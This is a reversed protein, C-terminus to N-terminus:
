LFWRLLVMLGREGDVGWQLEQLDIFHQALQKCSPSYLFSSMYWNIDWNLDSLWVCLNVSISKQIDRIIRLACLWLRPQSVHPIKNTTFISEMIRFTQEIGLLQWVELLAFPIRIRQRTKFSKSLSGSLSATRCAHNPVLSEVQRCVTILGIQEGGSTVLGQWKEKPLQFSAREHTRLMISKVTVSLSLLLIITPHLCPYLWGLWLAAGGCDGKSFLMLLDWRSKYFFIDIM